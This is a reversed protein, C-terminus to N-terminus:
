GNPPSELMCLAELYRSAIHARDFQAEVLARGRQGMRACRTPDKSLDIALQALRKPQTPPAYIGCDAAEILQRVVGDVSFLIPKRAAMGDFVKNPYVTKFTENDQLTVLSVDAAQLYTAIQDSPVADLWCVNPLNQSKAVLSSKQPGDGIAVWLINPHSQTYKAALVMQELDNALGHAGAYMVVFHQDWGMHQKLQKIHSTDVRDHAVLDAGNPYMWVPTQGYQEITRAIAPTVANIADARHYTLRELGRLAWTIPANEKLVGTTVASEPWLDRVEFVLKSKHRWQHLLGPLAVLLSPSSAVVVDANAMWTAMSASAAFGLFAMARGFFGRSFVDPTHMRWITVQGDQEIHRWRNKYASAKQGSQYDVQGAIVLVEHGAKAWAQAMVNFRAGGGQDPRLYYQHIILIRM